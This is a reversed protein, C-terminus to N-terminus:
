TPWPNAHADGRDPLTDYDGALTGPALANQRAIIREDTRRGALRHLAERTAPGKVAEARAGDIRGALRDARIVHVVAAAAQLDRHMPEPHWGHDDGTEALRDILALAAAAIDQAAFEPLPEPTANPTTM